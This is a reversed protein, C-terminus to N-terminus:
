WSAEGPDLGPGTFAAIMDPHSVIESAPKNIKPNPYM